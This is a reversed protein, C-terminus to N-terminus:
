SAEDCRMQDNVWKRSVIKGGSTVYEGPKLPSSPRVSQDIWDGRSSERYGDRKVEKVNVYFGGPLKNMLPREERRFGDPSGVTFLGQEVKKSNAGEASWLTRSSVKEGHEVHVYAKARSVKSVPCIPYAIM